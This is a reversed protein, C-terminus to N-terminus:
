ARVFMPWCDKPRRPPKVSGTSWNRGSCRSRSGFRAEPRSRPRKQVGPRSKWTRIPIEPDVSFRVVVRTPDDVDFGTSEVRGVKIGAYRVPAGQEMGGAFRTRMSYVSVPTQLLNMGGVFILALVLLVAAAVVFLGVKVEEGHKM